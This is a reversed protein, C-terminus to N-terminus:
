FGYKVFDVYSPKIRSDEGTPVVIESLWFRVEGNCIVTNSLSTSSTHKEKKHVKM